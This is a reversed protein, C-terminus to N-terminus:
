LCGQQVIANVRAQFEPSNKFEIRVQERTRAGTAIQNIWFLVGPLDGGRRLFANYLDGVYQANTRNRAAYEPSLTFGSSIAEVEAVVAAQGQCQAARFRNGWFFFGGDDPLRSLLGRYFDMVTNQEARVVPNGFIAQSFNRFEPSLMFEALAVERPMGNDLNGVWFALGGSDPQRNFFTAYLDTAFATNSRNFAVYEPSFYFTQALAYWVENINAGINAVRAGEGEWFTKGGADPARRLISRYYHTVLSREGTGTLMATAPAGGTPSAVLLNNFPGPLNPTFTVNATCTGGAPITGPCNHTVAYGQPAGIFGPTVTVLGGSTNTITVAQAPSTTNMSQGGFAVPAPTATLSPTGSAVVQLVAVAAGGAYVASASNTAAVMHMGAALSSTTCAASGSVIPITAACGSLPAGAVTFSVNGTVPGDNGTATATFTVNQGPASPNPSSTVALSSRRPTVQGSTYSVMLSSVDVAEFDSGRILNNLQQLQSNNWGPNPAGSVYWASGNDALIIGYTKMAPAIARPVPPLASINVSAKLRFRMGMPPRSKDNSLSAQHTAPWVYTNQTLPVTFRLAHEIGAPSSAEEFRALGPFIPLGAADASTWGLPRFPGNVKLDFIAGGSANWSAGNNVPFSNGTEYLICNTTDIVLVHRDGNNNPNGVGEIPANAPIPYNARFTGPPSEIAPVGPASDSEDGYATFTVPVRPQSGPVTIFPIGIPAADPDPPDPYLGSGFDMHFTRNAGIFNVYTQSKPHVPLTDVRANWVNNPPFVPCGGITPAAMAGHTALVLFPTLCGALIKM